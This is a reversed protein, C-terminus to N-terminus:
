LSGVARCYYNWVNRLAQPSFIKRRKELLEEAPTSSFSQGSLSALLQIQSARELNIAAIVAEAITTAAVVIGHNRLYCALSGGLTKAVAEGLERTVILDSTQTFRPVDPPTFQAGEHSVARLPQNTAAFAIAHIPHTHVVCTVESRARFIESHIPFELHRPLDGEVVQGDLDLRIVTEATMEDLGMAAPKMWFTDAGPQRYTVHGYITDNQGHAALIRCAYALQRRLERSDESVTTM